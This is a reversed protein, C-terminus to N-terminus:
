GNEAKIGGRIVFILDTSDKPPQLYKQDRALDLSGPVRGDLVKIGKALMQAHGIELHGKGLGAM